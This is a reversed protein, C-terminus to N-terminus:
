QLQGAAPHTLDFGNLTIREIPPAYLAGLVFRSGLIWVHYRISLGRAHMTSGWADTLHAHIGWAGTSTCMIRGTTPSVVDCRIEQGGARILVRDGERLDAADLRATESVKRMLERLEFSCSAHPM